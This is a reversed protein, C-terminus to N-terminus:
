IMNLEDSIKPIKFLNGRFRMKRLFTRQEVTFKLTLRLVLPENIPISVKVPSGVGGGAL